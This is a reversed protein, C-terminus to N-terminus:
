PAQDLLREYAHKIFSHIFSRMHWFPPGLAQIDPSPLLLSSPLQGEKLGMGPPLLLGVGKGRHGLSAFPSTQITSHTTCSGSM